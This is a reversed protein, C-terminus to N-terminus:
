WIHAPHLQPSHNLEPNSRLSSTLAEYPFAPPTRLFIGSDRSQLSLNDEENSLSLPETFSATPRRETRM